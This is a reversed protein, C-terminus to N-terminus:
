PVISRGGDIVIIEGTAYHAKEALFFVAEAIDSVDGLRNFPIRSITTKRAQDSHFPQFLIAGPAVGNVRIKPALECALSRTLIALGAKSAAYHSYGKSPRKWMADLINIVSPNKANNLVSFLGQTIFFPAELNVSHMHQFNKRDIKLFEEPWFTSANHVLVDLSNTLRCVESVLYDQGSHTSLDACITGLIQDRKIHSKIYEKLEPMSQYAHAIVCYDHDIFYELIAKGIRKGSGTVLVTKM